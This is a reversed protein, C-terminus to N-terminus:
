RMVGDREAALDMFRSFHMAVIWDDFAPDTQGNDIFGACAVFRRRTPWPLWRWRRVYIVRTFAM